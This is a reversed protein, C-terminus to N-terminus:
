KFFLGVFNFDGILLYPALLQNVLNDIDCQALNYHPIYITCITFTKHLSVKVAVAQLATNLPIVDHSITDKILLSCGGIARDNVDSVSTKLYHKYGRFSGTYNERLFTEQLALIYPNFQAILNKIEEFNPRYGRCNWQIIKNTNHDEM